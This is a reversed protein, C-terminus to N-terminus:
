TADTYLTDDTANFYSLDDDISDRFALIWALCGDSFTQEADDAANDEASTAADGGATPTTDQAFVLAGLLIQAAFLSRM